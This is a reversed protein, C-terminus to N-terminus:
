GRSAGQPSAIEIYLVQEAGGAGAPDEVVLEHVTPRRGPSRVRVRFSGPLVQAARVEGQMDTEAGRFAGGDVTLGRAPRGDLHLVLVVDPGDARPDGVLEVEDGARVGARTALEVGDQIARLDYLGEGLGDLEFLDDVVEARHQEYPRESSRALVYARPYARGARDILRGSTSAESPAIAVTIPQDPTSGAQGRTEPMPVDILIEGAMYGDARVVVLLQDYVPLTRSECESRAHECPGCPPREIWAASFTGDADTTTSRIALPLVALPDSDPPPVFYVTAAPVPNGREDVVEGHLRPLPRAVV